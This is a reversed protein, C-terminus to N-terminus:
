KFLILFRRLKENRLRLIYFKLGTLKDNGPRASRHPLQARLRRRGRWLPQDFDRRSEDMRRLFHVSVFLLFFLNFHLISKLDFDMENFVDFSYWTTIFQIFPPGARFTLLHQLIFSRVSNPWFPRTKFNHYEIM